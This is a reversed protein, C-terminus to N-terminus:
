KPLEPDKLTMLTSVVSFSTVLAQQSICCAWARGVVTKVFLHGVITFYRSKRYPPVV